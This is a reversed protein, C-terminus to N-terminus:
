IKMPLACGVSPHFQARGPGSKAVSRCTIKDNKCIWDCIFHCKKTISMCPEDSNYM